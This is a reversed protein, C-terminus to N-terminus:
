ARQLNTWHATAIFALGIMTLPLEAIGHGVSVAAALSAIGCTALLVPKTRWRRVAGVGIAATAVLVAIVLGVKHIAPHLLMTGAFGLMGVLVLSAACHLACLGSMVIGLRDFRDGVGHSVVRNAPAPPCSLRAPNSAM